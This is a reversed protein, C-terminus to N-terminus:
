NMDTLSQRPRLGFRADQSIMGTVYITGVVYGYLNLGFISCLHHLTTSYEPRILLVKWTTLGQITCYTTLWKHTFPM